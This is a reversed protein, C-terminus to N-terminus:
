LSEGTNPLYGASIKPTSIAAKQYWAYAEAGVMFSWFYYVTGWV